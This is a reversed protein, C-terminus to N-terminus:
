QRVTEIEVGQHVACLTQCGGFRAHLDDAITEHYGHKPLAAILDEVMVMKTTRMEGRYSILENDSPCQATFQFRYINM